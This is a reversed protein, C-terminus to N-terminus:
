ECDSKDRIARVISTLGIGVLGVALLGDHWHFTRGSLCVVAESLGVLLHFAGNMFEIM